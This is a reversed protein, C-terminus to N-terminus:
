GESGEGRELTVEVAAEKEAPNFPVLNGEVKKGNVTLRPVGKSIGHPNRVTICYKVGRFVRTVRYEKWGAPICPDIRLGDYDPKIGLIAQSIAVFSWAATGTLWSNKAEGHVPADRGAIMQAYCYPECRYREINSEKVAPCIRLYYDFARDGRGLIAEAMAIWPNSHCFIGANEKYGPPYSSIEGLHPYYRSYAPQQLIIGDPTALHEAVSDLARRARGDALGVGGLVCWGQSEIFIKGEACDRSGVKGGSSDYARLFWAGDWGHQDVAEQLRRCDAEIRGALPAAGIRRLLAALERGAYLFLGAIMLSEATGGGAKQGALQFSEDPSTSFSNLNLCDNWDAHGILPLGHPGLREVTFQMSRLLHELLPVAAGPADAYGVPEDLIAFDGSEKIYACAAVVLWLPDDNFGAGVETNGQGTLPQYQHYCSGDSFQVAALDLLRQRAREPVMHVIGLLDQNSDRFGIGRTIGSEYLSASRSLNFTVMCQYQNWTNVMRSVPESALSVQFRGLLGAWYGQLAKLARDVAGPERYLQLRARLQEKNVVGPAAFKEDPRNEMYGLVFHFRTEQGPELVLNLQHAGVPAWGSAVSNSCRGARVAAPSEFGGHRGLFSDRATDFGDVPRSCAFYAYHCRRERYGTKHVILSEEAEVEVEGINLNRQFNIMDDLADWLCFEVFSFLTLVRPRGSHNTLRVDWIELNEELPVFFTVAATIENKRGEIVTYGLGHRCRYHDLETRCPKWGPNWVTDGEKIYLYRGGTDAPVGHYRYRTLRRLRADRYFSYGGATNSILGFFNQCGLYNIWPLPTDPRLIVYERSTDDFYGYSNKKM